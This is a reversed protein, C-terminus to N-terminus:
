QAWTESHMPQPKPWRVGILPPRPPDGSRAPPILLASGDGPSDHIARFGAGGDDITPAALVRNMAM